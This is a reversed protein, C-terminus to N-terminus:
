TGHYKKRWARPSQYRKGLSWIGAKKQRARTEAAKFARIDLSSPPNGQYVEAMGTELLSLNINAPGLFIEALVRNYSGTGHQKLIVEKNLVMRSLAQRAKQAFPQGPIGKRGSEPADIGALRVKFSLDPTQVRVTDGDYVKTVRCAFGPPITIRDELTQVREQGAPPAINSFHRIGDEDTWQYLDAARVFALCCLISCTLIVSRSIRIM